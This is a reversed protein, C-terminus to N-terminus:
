PTPLVFLPHDSALATMVLTAQEAFLQLELEPTSEAFLGEAEDVAVVLARPVILQSTAVDEVEVVQWVAVHSGVSIESPPHSAPMFRISTLGSPAFERLSVTPVLEGERVLNSVTQGQSVSQAYNSAIPGLDLEVLEFDSEDLVAGPLLTGTAVLYTPLPRNLGFFVAM